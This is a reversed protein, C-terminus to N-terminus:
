KMYKNVYGNDYFFSMLDNFNFWCKVCKMNKFKYSKSDPTSLLM